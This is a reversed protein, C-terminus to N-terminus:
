IQSNSCGVGRQQPHSLCVLVKPQKSAPPGVAADPYSRPSQATNWINITVWTKFRQDRQDTSIIHKSDQRHAHTHTHTHTHIALTSPALMHLCLQFFPFTLFLAPKNCGQKQLQQVLRKNKSKPQQQETIINALYFFHLLQRLKIPM